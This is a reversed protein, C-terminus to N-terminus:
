GGLGIHRYDKIVAPVGQGELHAAVARHHGDHISRYTGWDNVVIPRQVGNDRVDERLRGVAKAPNDGEDYHRAEATGGFMGQWREMRGVPDPDGVTGGFDPTRLGGLEEHPIFQQVNLNRNIESM